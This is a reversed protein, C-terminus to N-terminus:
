RDVRTWNVELTGGESLARRLSENLTGLDAESTVRQSGTPGKSTAVAQGEQVHTPKPGAAVPKTILATAEREARELEPALPVVLESRRLANCVREVLEAARPGHNPEDVRELVAELLAWNMGEISRRTSEATKWSRAVSAPSTGHEFAFGALAEVVQRPTGGRVEEFLQVGASADAIRVSKAPENPLFVTPVTDLAVSLGVAAHMQEIAVNKVQQVLSGVNAGTRYLDGAVGLVAGAVGQAARWDDESPLPIPRLLDTARLEGLKVVGQAQGDREISRETMAAWVQVLLDRVERLLGRPEPSDLWGWVDGVALVRSDSQRALRELEKRWEDRLVFASETRGLELPDAFARMLKLDASDVASRGQPSGAADMAIEFAREIQKRSFSQAWRPARPFQFDLGQELLGELGHRLDGTGPPRLSLAPELSVFREPVVVTDDLGKTFAADTSLGYAALLYGRVTHRLTDRQGRLLSKAQARDVSSLHQSHQEFSQDSRLVRDIKVLRGLDRRATANLFLPAWVLTRAQRGTQRFENLKKQDRTAGDPQDDLPVDVVVKWDLEDNDLSSLPLNAVNAILVRARRKTGRWELDVRLDDNDGSLKLSDTLLERVLQVRNGHTDFEAASVLVGEVDVGHLELTIQPNAEDGTIRIEPVSTAWERLRRLVAAGEQGPIRSTISGHNLAAIRKADLGDLAPVNGVLNAVLLTKLIRDDTRWAKRKPDSWGLQEVEQERLGHAKELLPVLKGDYLKRAREFAERFAGSVADNGRSIVDYLDGVPILEGLELTDRREVLLQLMARLATRDRQLMSAAQVLADVLVPSFPYVKRFDDLTHSEGLLTERLKADSGTLDRFAQGIQRAAEDDRPALLRRSAIEPLDTTELRVEAFRMEHHSLKGDIDLEEAGSLDRQILSRLDRQRAIFGILPIPREMRNSEVLNVLKDVQAEIFGPTSARSALWLILEDLFLVIADYGLSKAHAAMQELGVAFEVTGSRGAQSPFVREVLATALRQREPSSHAADRAAEYQELTWGGGSYDGWGDDASDDGLLKLFTEDGLRGRMGEADRVVADTDFLAPLKAEPHERQVVRVYGDFVREEISNAGLMHYPVLLFKKKGLWSGHKAVVPALEPRSLADQDGILLRHLVAMFHSKGSGFSGHLYVARGKQHPGQHLSGDPATSLGLASRVLELAEDFRGALTDTIVYEGLTKKAAAQTVGDTLKLVFDQAGLSEPIRILDRLLM